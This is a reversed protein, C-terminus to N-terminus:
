RLWRVPTQGADARSALGSIPLLGRSARMGPTPYTAQWKTM